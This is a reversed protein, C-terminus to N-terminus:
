LIHTLKHIIHGLLGGDGHEGGPARLDPFPSSFGQCIGPNVRKFNNDNCQPPPPALVIIISMITAIVVIMTEGRVSAKTM